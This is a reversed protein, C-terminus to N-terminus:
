GRQPASKYRMGYDRVKVKYKTEGKIKQGLLQNSFAEEDIHKIYWGVKVSLSQAQSQENIQIVEGSTSNAVLGLPGPKFALDM